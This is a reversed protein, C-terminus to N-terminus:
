IRGYFGWGRSGEHGWLSDEVDALCREPAVSLGWLRAALVEERKRSGRVVMLCTLRM